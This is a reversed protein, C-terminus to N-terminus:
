TQGGPNGPNPPNSPDAPSTPEPDGHPVEEYKAELYQTPAAILAPAEEQVLAHALAKLQEDSLARVVEIREPAKGYGRDLILEAAKLREQPKAAPDKMIKIITRLAEGAERRCQAVLSETARKGVLKKGATQAKILRTALERVAM